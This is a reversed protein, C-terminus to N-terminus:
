NGAFPTGFFGVGLEAWVLFLGALLVAVAILRLKLTPLMRLAAEIVLGTGFLLVGAAIFDFVGWRVEETVAMAAFPIALLAAAALMIVVFRKNEMQYLDEM